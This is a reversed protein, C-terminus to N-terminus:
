LPQLGKQVRRINEKIAEQIEHKAERFLGTIVCRLHSYLDEPIERSKYNFNKLSNMHKNTILHLMNNYFEIDNPLIYKKLKILDKEAAAYKSMVINTIRKNNLQILMKNLVTKSIGPIPTM